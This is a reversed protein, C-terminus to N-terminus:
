SIGISVGESIAKNYIKMLVRVQKDNPIIIKKDKMKILLDMESYVLGSEKYNSMYYDYLISWVTHKLNVIFIQDEIGREFKKEKKVQLNLSNNELNDILLKVDILVDFNRESLKEWCGKQKAWQAINAYGQPADILTNYVQKSLEKLINVLSDPLSQNDWIQSFNIHKKRKSILLSLYSMTYAVVQARFGGNYWESNTVIKELEKFMIVRSIVNKFYVETISYEDKELKETVDQAFEAFSYEIGKAVVYPKQMWALESKSIFKKDLFQEKPNELQFKVKNAKTLYAQENLYEGRVREYYWHTRRQSGNVVPAWIRQSYNKMEKHFPSNSFFDSKNVKNQTNAYESVKSVFEDQKDQDRVVSLKMQVSIKSVDLKSLKRAAYIASTTQGGNVIQFNNIAQIRGESNCSIDTATATIGNNYAFFKQPDYKITNRLGKNVNGRFQLFTRVNQEFLKQGHLEYINALEEGSIYTLYSEYEESNTQIKLCPLNVQVNLDVQNQESLFINFIYEIDVIRYETELEGIQPLEIKQFSRTIKGNTLVIFRVKRIKNQSFYKYINFAAIYAEDTEEMESYYKELCKKLFKTVRKAKTNINSLNITQIEEDQYFQSVLLTLGGREEDYDYGSIEMGVKLYETYQYDKTLDGSTILWECVEEFFANSKMLGRGESTSLVSQIFDSHFENITIVFCM